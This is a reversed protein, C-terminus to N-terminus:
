SEINLSMSVRLSAYLISMTLHCISTISRAILLDDTALGHCSETLVMDCGLDMDFCSCEVM